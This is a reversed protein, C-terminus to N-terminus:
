LYNIIYVELVLEIQLKYNWTLCTGDQIKRQGHLSWVRRIGLIQIFVSADICYTDTLYVIRLLLSILETTNNSKLIGCLVTDNPNMKRGYSTGVRCCDALLDIRSYEYYSNFDRWCNSDDLSRVYVEEFKTMYKEVYQKAKYKVSANCALDTVNQCHKLEKLM